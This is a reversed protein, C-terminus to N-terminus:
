DIVTEYLDRAIDDNNLPTKEKPEILRKYFEYEEKKIINKDKKQEEIDNWDRIWEDM